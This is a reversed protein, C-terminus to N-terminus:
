CFPLLCFMKFDTKRETIKNCKKKIDEAKEEEKNSKLHLGICIEVSCVKIKAKIDKKLVFTMLLERILTASHPIFLHLM